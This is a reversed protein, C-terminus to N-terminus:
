NLQQSVCTVLFWIDRDIRQDTLLERLSQLKGHFSVITYSGGTPFSEKFSYQTTPVPRVQLKISARGRNQWGSGTQCFHCLAYTESSLCFTTISLWQPCQWSKAVFCDQCLLCCQLIMIVAFKCVSLIKAVKNVVVPWKWWKNCSRWSQRRRWHLM